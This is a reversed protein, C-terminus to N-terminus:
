SFREGLPELGGDSDVLELLTLRGEFTGDYRPIVCSIMSRTGGGVNLSSLRAGNGELHLSVSLDFPNSTSPVPWSKFYVPSVLIASSAAAM